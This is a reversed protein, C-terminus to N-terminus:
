PLVIPFVPFNGLQTINLVTELFLYISLTQCCHIYLAITSRSHKMNYHSKLTKDYSIKEHTNTLHTNNIYSKLVKSSSGVNLIVVPTKSSCQTTMINSLM